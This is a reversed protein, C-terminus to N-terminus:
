ASAEENHNLINTAKALSEAVYCPHKRLADCIEYITMKRLTRMDYVEAVSKDFRALFQKNNEHADSYLFWFHGFSRIYDRTFGLNNLTDEVIERCTSDGLLSYNTYALHHLVDDIKLFDYEEKSSLYQLVRKKFSIEQAAYGDLPNWVENIPLLTSAHPCLLMTVLVKESLLFTTTGQLLHNNLTNFCPHISASSVEITCEGEIQSILSIAGASAEKIDGKLEAFSPSTYCAPCVCNNLFLLTYEHFVYGCKIHRIRLSPRATNDVNLVKFDNNNRHNVAIQALDRDSITRQRCYHEYVEFSGFFFLIICIFNCLAYKPISQSVALGFRWNNFQISPNIRGGSFSDFLYNRGIYGDSVIAYDLEYPDIELMNALDIITKVGKYLKFDPNARCHRILSDITNCYLQNKPLPDSNCVCATGSFSPKGDPFTVLATHHKSCFCVNPFNHSLRTHVCGESSIDEKICELCYRTESPSHFDFQTKSTYSNDIRVKYHRMQEAPLRKFAKYQDTIPLTTDIHNTSSRFVPFITHYTILSEITINYQEADALIIDFTTGFVSFNPMLISTERPSSYLISNNEFAARMSSYSQFGNCFAVNELWSQTTEGEHILPISLM